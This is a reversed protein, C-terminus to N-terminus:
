VKKNFVGNTQYASKSYSNSANRARLFGDMNKKLEIRKQAATIDLLQQCEVVQLRDCIEKFETNSYKLTKIYEITKEREDTLYKLNDYDGNKLAEILNKTMGVYMELAQALGDM